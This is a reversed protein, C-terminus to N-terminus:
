VWNQCFIQIACGVSGTTTKLTAGYIFGDGYTVFVPGLVCLGCVWLAALM